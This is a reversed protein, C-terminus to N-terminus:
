SRGRRMLWNTLSTNAPKWIRLRFFSMKLLFLSPNFYLTLSTSSTTYSRESRFRTGFFSCYFLLPGQHPFHPAAIRSTKSYSHTKDQLHSRRQSLRLGSETSFYYIWSALRDEVWKRQLHPRHTYLHAVHVAVSSARVRQVKSVRAAPAVLDLAVFVRTSFGM